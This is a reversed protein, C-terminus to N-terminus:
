QLHNIQTSKAPHASCWEVHIFVWKRPSQSRKDPNSDRDGLWLLHLRNSSFLELRKKSERCGTGCKEM